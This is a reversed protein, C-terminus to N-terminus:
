KNFWVVHSVTESFKACALKKVSCPVYLTVKGDSPFGFGDSDIFAGARVSNYFEEGTYLDGDKDVPIDSKSFDLELIYPMAIFDTGEPIVYKHEEYSKCVTHVVICNNVYEASQIEERIWNDGIRILYKDRLETNLVSNVGTFEFM